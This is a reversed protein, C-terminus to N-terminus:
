KGKDIWDQFEETFNKASLPNEFHFTHSYVATYSNMSWQHRELNKRCWDKCKVALDSHVDVSTANPIWKSKYEFIQQPTM